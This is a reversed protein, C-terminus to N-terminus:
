TQCLHPQPQAFAVSSMVPRTAAIWVPVIAATSAIAVMPSMTPRILSKEVVMAEATSSCVAVVLSIARLTLSAAM